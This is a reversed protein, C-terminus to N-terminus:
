DRCTGQPAFKEIQERPWRFKTACLQDLPDIRLGSEFAKSWFLGWNEENEPWYLNAQLVKQDADSFIVELGAGRPREGSGGANGASVHPGTLLIYVRDVASSLVIVEGSNFHEVPWTDIKEVNVGIQVVMLSSMLSPDFGMNLFLGQFHAEFSPLQVTMKETQVIHPDPLFGGFGPFIGSWVFERPVLYKEIEVDILDGDSVATTSSRLPIQRLVIVGIVLLLLVGLLWMVIKRM